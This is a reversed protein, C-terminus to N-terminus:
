RELRSAQLKQKISALRTADSHSANAGLSLGSPQLFRLGIRM